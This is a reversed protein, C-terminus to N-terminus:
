AGPKPCSHTAATLDRLPSTLLFSFAPTQLRSSTRVPHVSSLRGPYPHESGCSQKLDGLPCAALSHARLHFGPGGPLRSIMFLLNLFLVWLTTHQFGLTSLIELLPSHDVRHVHMCTGCKHLHVRLFVRQGSICMRILPLM